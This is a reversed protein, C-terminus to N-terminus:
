EVYSQRKRQELAREIAERGRRVNEKFQEDGVIERLEEETMELLIDMLVESITKKM